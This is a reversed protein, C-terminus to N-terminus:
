MSEGRAHKTTNILTDQVWRFGGGEIHALDPERECFSMEETTRREWEENVEKEERDGWCCVFKYIVNKFLM